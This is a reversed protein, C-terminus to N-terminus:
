SDKHSRLYQDVTIQVWNYEERDEESLSNLYEERQRMQEAKSLKTHDIYDSFNIKKM